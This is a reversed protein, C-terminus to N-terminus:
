SRLLGLCCEKRGHTRRLIKYDLAQHHPLKMKARKPSELMDVLTRMAVLGPEELELHCSQLPLFLNTTDCKLAFM